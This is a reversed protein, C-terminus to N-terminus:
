VFSSPHYRQKEHRPKANKSKVKGSIIRGHNRNTEKSLRLRRRAKVAKVEHIHNGVMEEYKRRTNPSSGELEQLLEKTRARISSMTGQLPNSEDRESSTAFASPNCDEPDSANSMLLDNDVENMCNHSEQTFGTGSGMGSDLAALISQVHSEGYNLISVKKASVSKVRVVIQNYDEDDCCAGIAFKSCSEYPRIPPAMAVTHHLRRAEILRNKISLEQDSMHEPDKTAVFRCYSNHFRLDISHHSWWEFKNISYSLAVHSVHRDPIGFRDVYGCSCVMTGDDKLTVVRVREFVPMRHSSAKRPVGRLVLWTREDIRISIYKTAERMEEVLMSEAVKQVEGGTETDSYLQTKHFSASVAAAKRKAREADQDTMVKTSVAQSMTPLVRNECYKLGCNTGEHPTNTWADFARVHLFFCRAYHQEHPFVHNRLFDLIRNVESRYLVSLVRSSNLDALLMAKSVQYEDVTEIEKILSYLWAKIEDVIAGIDATRLDHHVGFSGVHRV